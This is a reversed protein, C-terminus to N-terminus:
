LQETHHGLVLAGRLDTMEQEEFPKRKPKELSKVMRTVIYLRVLRTAAYSLGLMPKTFCANMIPGSKGSGNDLPRKQWHGRPDWKRAKVCKETSCRNGLNNERTGEEVLLLVFLLVM